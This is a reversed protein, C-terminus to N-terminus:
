IKEEIYKIFENFISEITEKSPEELKYDHLVIYGVEDGEGYFDLIVSHEDELHELFFFYNEDEELKFYDELDKYPFRKAFRVSQNHNEIFITM